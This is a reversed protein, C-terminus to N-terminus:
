IMIETVWSTELFSSLFPLLIIPDIHVERDEIITLLFIITEKLIIKYLYTSAHIKLSYFSFLIVTSQKNIRIKEKFM